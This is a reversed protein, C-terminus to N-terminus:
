HLRFNISVICFFLIGHLWTKLVVPLHSIKNINCKCKVKSTKAPLQTAKMNKLYQRLRADSNECKQKFRYHNELEEICQQCIQSPLGDGEFVQFLMHVRNSTHITHSIIQQSSIKDSLNSRARHWIDCKQKEEGEKIWCPACEWTHLFVQCSVVSLVSYFLIRM